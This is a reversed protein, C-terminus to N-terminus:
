RPELTMAVATVGCVIAMSLTFLILMPAGDVVGVAFAATFTKLLWTAGFYSYVLVCINHRKHPNFSPWILRGGIDHWVVDAFGLAAVALVSLNLLDMPGDFVDHIRAVMSTPSFLGLLAGWTSITLVALRASLAFLQTPTRM